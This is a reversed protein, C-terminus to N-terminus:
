TNVKPIIISILIFSLFIHLILSYKSRISIAFPTYKQTFLLTM